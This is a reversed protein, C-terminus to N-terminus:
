QNFDSLWKKVFAGMDKDQGLMAPGCLPDFSWATWNIQHHADLYDRLPQGYKEEDGKVVWFAKENSSWGWETLFLPIKRAANGFLKDWQEPKWNPYVHATYVINQGSFPDQEAFNAMQSWHPSGVLLVTHPAQSRVQDVWKQATIKWAVWNEPTRSKPETPENFIEYLINKHAAYRPAVIKWFEKLEKETEPSDWKEIAHWDIICYINNDSCAKVAPDLRDSLYKQSPIKRWEKPQVPLRLVNVGWGTAQPILQLPKHWDLSCLSVGRLTVPTGDPKALHNGGVHLRPLEEQAKAPGLFFLAFLFIIRIM